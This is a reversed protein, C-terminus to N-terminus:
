RLGIWSAVTAPVLLAAPVWIFPPVDGLTLAIGAELYPRLVLLWFPLMAVGSLALAALAWSHAGGLGFWALFAEVVGFGVLLGALAILITRRLLVLHPDATLLDAPSAGYLATDTRNSVFLISRGPDSYAPSGLLIPTLIGVVLHIGATALFLTVGLGIPSIWRFDEAMLTYRRSASIGRRKRRRLSPLHALLEIYLARMEEVIDVTDDDL